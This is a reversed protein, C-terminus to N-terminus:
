SQPTEGPVGQRASSSLVVLGLLWSIGVLAIATWAAGAPRSGFFASALDSVRASGIGRVHRNGSSTLLRGSVESFLMFDGAATVLFFAGFLLTPGFSGPRRSLGWTLLLAEPLALSWLYWGGAGGPARFRAFNKWAFYGLAVFFLLIPAGIRFLNRRSEPDGREAVERMTLYVCGALGAILAVYVANSFVFASMGSVWVHTKAITWADRLWPVDLFRVPKPHSLIELLSVASGNIRRSFYALAAPPLLLLAFRVARHREGRRMADIALAPLAALGYLKAWPALGAAAASAIPRRGSGVRRSLSMGVAAAMLLACSADNSVRVLALAFGPVFALIAVAMWSGRGLGIRQAARLTLLGVLFALLANGCRLAYIEGIPSLKPLTRLLLGAAVYYGPSQLMEYNRYADPPPAPRPATEGYSRAGFQEAYEPYLPWARMGEVLRAPLTASEFAHWAPTEACTEVYGQHFPEDFGNWPPLLFAWALLRAALLALVLIELPPFRREAPM